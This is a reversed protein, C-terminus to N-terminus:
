KGGGAHTGPSKRRPQPPGLDMQEEEILQVIVESPIGERVLEKIVMGKQNEVTIIKHLEEKNKEMDRKHEQEVSVMPISWGTLWITDMVHMVSLDAKYRSAMSIRVKITKDCYPTLWSVVLIRKIFDM